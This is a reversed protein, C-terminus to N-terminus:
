VPQGSDDVVRSEARAFPNYKLNAPDGGSQKLVHARASNKSWLRFTVGHPTDEGPCDVYGAQSAKWCPQGDSTVVFAAVSVGLHDGALKLSKRGDNATAHSAFGPVHYPKGTDLYGQDLAHKVVPHGREDRAKM